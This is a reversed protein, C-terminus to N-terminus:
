WIKIFSFKKSLSEFFVSIIFKMSIRGNPASNNMSVSLCVSLCSSALLRKKCNQSSNLFKYLFWTASAHAANVQSRSMNLPLKVFEDHQVKKEM